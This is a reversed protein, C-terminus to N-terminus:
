EFVSSRNDDDSVGRVSLDDTDKIIKILADGLIDDDDYSQIDKNHYINIAKARISALYKQNSGHDGFFVSNLKIIIVYKGKGKGKIEKTSIIDGVPINTKDFGKVALSTDTTKLEIWLCKPKDTEAKFDNEKRRPFDVLPKIYKNPETRIKSAHDERKNVFVNKASKVADDVAKVIAKNKWAEFEEIFQCFAKEEDTGDEKLNYVTTAVNAKLTSEVFGMYSVYGPVRVRCEERPGGKYRLNCMMVEVKKGNEEVQILKVPELYFHEENFKYVPEKDFRILEPLAAAM